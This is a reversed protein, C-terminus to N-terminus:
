SASRTQVVIPNMVYTPRNQLAQCAVMIIRLFEENNQANRIRDKFMETLDLWNYGHTRNKVALFPYNGEVFDYLYQFDELWEIVTMDEPHIPNLVIEFDREPPTGMTVYLALVTITIVITSTLM